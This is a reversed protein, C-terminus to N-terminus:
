KSLRDAFADIFKNGVRDILNKQAFIKLFLPLNFKATFKVKTNDEDISELNWLAYFNLFPGKLQSIRVELGNIKNISEFSYTKNLISFVLRGSILGEDSKALRISDICGPLFEKYEEFNNILKLIKESSAEFTRSGEFSISM